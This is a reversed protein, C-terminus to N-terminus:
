QAEIKYFAQNNESCVDVISVKRGTGTLESEGSGSPVIRYLASSAEIDVPVFAPVVGLNTSKTIRYSRGLESEFSFTLANGADLSPSQETSAQFDDMIMQGSEVSINNALGYLYVQFTTGAGLGFNLNEDGNANEDVGFVSLLSWQTGDTPNEDYFVRFVKETSDFSLKIIASQPYINNAQIQTGTTLTAGSYYYFNASIDRSGGFGSVYYSGHRVNLWKSSSFAPYIEIGVSAYEGANDADTKNETRVILDFDEDYSARTRWSLYQYSLGSNSTYELQQNVEYIGGSGVNSFATWRQTNLTDDNFNDNGTFQAKLCSAFFLAITIKSIM